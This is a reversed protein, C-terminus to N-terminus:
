AQLRKIYGPQKQERPVRVLHNHQGHINERRRAVIIKLDQTHEALPRRRPLLRAITEHQALGGDRETENAGFVSFSRGTQISWYHSAVECPM